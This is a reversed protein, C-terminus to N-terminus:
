KPHRPIGQRSIFHAFENRIATIYPHIIRGIRKYTLAKVLGGKGREEISITSLDDPRDIRYRDDYRFEISAKSAFSPLSYFSTGSVRFKDKTKGQLLLMKKKRIDCLANINILYENKLQNNECRQYTDGEYAQGNDIENVYQYFKISEFIKAIHEKSINRPKSVFKVVEFDINDMRGLLSNTLFERFELNLLYQIPKKDDGIHDLKITNYVINAWESDLGGVEVLFANKSRNIQDEFMKLAFVTRNSKLWKELYSKVKKGTLENKNKVFVRRDLTTTIKIDTNLTRKINDINQQSFVFIPVFYRDLIDKIFAINEDTKTTALAGGLNVGEPLETEGEGKIDWDLIIFSIGSLNSRANNAPLDTCKIFLTGEAELNSIMKAISSNADCLEDDIVLATSNLLSTAM